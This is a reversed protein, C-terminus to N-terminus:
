KNNLARAFVSVAEARAAPNQPRFSNDPYGSILDRSYAVGIAEQAWSSIMQSDSFNTTDAGTPLQAAKVLMVAMQERTVPDNPGFKQEDYGSIIGAAYATAVVGQAWHGATDAFIKSDGAPLGWAKVIMAALEARTINQEPKFSGDPYGEIIGAAALRGIAEEAWHGHLDNFVRATPQESELTPKTEPQVKAKALVAFKTFHNVTGSISGTSWNIEINDLAIWRSGDWWCILLEDRDKDVQNQDFPLTITVDGDFDGSQDKSIDFVESVLQLDGSVSVSSSSVRAIAIRVPSDVANAPIDVTVGDDNVMGGSHTISTGTNANSSEGSSGGSNRSQPSTINIVQSGVVGSGDNATAKVTITGATVATLLGSNANITAIGTGNDVNWTVTKNNASAPSVQASLQLTKGKEVSIIGGVSNVTISDVAVHPKSVTVTWDRTDGNEATVRYVVPHTFDNITVGSVQSIGNVTATAKDSITFTATLKSIDTEESVGINVVSIGDISAPATQQPFSFSSIYNYPSQGVTISAAGQRGDPTTATITASGTGLATINGNQDVTVAAENSSAWTLRQGAALAPVPTAKLTHTTGVLTSMSSSVNVGTITIDKEGVIGSGDTATARVTVLGVTGQNMMGTIPDICAFGAGVEGDAAEFWSKGKGTVSWTVTKNAAEAPLVEALMQLSGDARNDKMTEAGEIGTVTISAVEIPGDPTTVMVRKPTIMTNNHADEIILYADYATNKAPLPGAVISKEEHKSMSIDKDSALALAGFRDKGEKVQQNTPLGSDKAVVVYWATVDEYAKALIEVQKSGYAQALGAQPYGTVFDPPLKDHLLKVGTTNDADMARGDSGYISAGDAPKIEITEVGMASGTTTIDFVVLDEGGALAGGSLNKLGNVTVGTTNGSNKQFNLTFDVATVAGIGKGEGDTTTYVGESFTIAITSNDAAISAGTICVPEEVAYAAGPLFMVVMALTLLTSIIKAKRQIHIVAKHEKRQNVHILCAKKRINESIESNGRGM